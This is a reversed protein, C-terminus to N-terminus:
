KSFAGARVARYWLFDTHHRNGGAIEDRYQRGLELCKNERPHKTQAKRPQGTIDSAYGKTLPQEEDPRATRSCTKFTAVFPTECTGGVRLFTM